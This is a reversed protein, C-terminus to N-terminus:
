FDLLRVVPSDGRRLFEVCPVQLPLLRLAGLTVGTLPVRYSKDYVIRQLSYPSRRRILSLTM